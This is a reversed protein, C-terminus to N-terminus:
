WPASGVLALVQRQLSQDFAEYLQSVYERWGTADAKRFGAAPAQGTHVIAGRDRVLQELRETLAPDVSDFAKLGILDFLRTVQGVNATNLGFETSDEDGVARTRIIEVWLARWGPHVSLSWADRKALEQKPRDPVDAAKIENSIFEVVEIAVQEVYNEWVAYAMATSALFLAQERKGPKGAGTKAYSLVNDVIEL